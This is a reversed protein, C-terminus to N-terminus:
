KGKDELAKRLVEAPHLARKGVGEEIQHRCSTGAAVIITEEAAEQVAPFLRDAGMKMSIEYHESEYGFSGAMGCCGSDLGQVEAGPIMALAQEGREAGVLARAQCHSHMLVHTDPLSLPLQWTGEEDLKNIFEEFTYCHDSVVKVRVDDPLLYHYEDRMSLLCSPELGVIPFGQAAFPYLRDVTDRAAKRAQAVMGKSIYPRGCCKHGPLVVNLGAAEFVEVASIAIEPDNYTNWTDNFLVVTEGGTSSGSAKHKRFWRTFPQSAFEPM